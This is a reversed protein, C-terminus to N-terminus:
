ESGEDLIAHLVDMARYLRTKATGLPIGLIEAISHLPLDLWFRLVVVERQEVSLQRLSAQVVMWQDMGGAPDFSTAPLAEVPLPFRARKKVLTKAENLVIRILWGRFTDPERLKPLKLWARLVANQWADEADMPEETISLGVYYLQKQLPEVLRRFADKDGRQAALVLAFESM